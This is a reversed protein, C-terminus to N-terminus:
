EEESSVLHPWIRQAKTLPKREAPAPKAPVEVPPPNNLFLKLEGESLHPHTYRLEDLRAYYDRSHRWVPEIFPSRSM